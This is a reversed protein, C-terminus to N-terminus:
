KLIEDIDDIQYHKSEVTSSPLLQTDLTTIPHAISSQLAPTSELSVGDVIGDRILSEILQQGKTLVYEVDNTCFAVIDNASSIERSVPTRNAGDEERCPITSPLKKEHEHENKMSPEEKPKTEWIIVESLRCINFPRTAEGGTEAADEEHGFIDV